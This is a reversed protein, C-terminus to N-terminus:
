NIENIKGIVKEVQKNFEKEIRQLTKPSIRLLHHDWREDREKKQEAELAEKTKYHEKSWESLRDWSLRSSHGIVEEYTKQSLEYFDKVNREYCHVILELKEGLRQITALKKTHEIFPDAVTMDGYCRLETKVLYRYHACQINYGGAIIVETSMSVTKGERTVNCDIVIVGKDKDVSVDTIIDTRQIYRGFAKLLDIVIGWEYMEVSYKTPIELVGKVIRGKKYKEVMETILPQAIELVSDLNSKM